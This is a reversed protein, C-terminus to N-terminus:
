SVRCGRSLSSGGSATHLTHEKIKQWPAGQQIEKWVLVKGDYSCSALINGFKPHAWSVQWVPGEHGRLTDILKHAAAAGDGAGVDFIKITRDSSATALRNGFHNVQADHLADSHDTEISQTASEPAAAPPAM